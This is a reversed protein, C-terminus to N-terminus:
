PIGCLIGQPSGGQPGGLGGWHDGMTFALFNKNKYLFHCQFWALDILSTAHKPAWSVGPVSCLKTQHKRPDWGGGGWGFGLRRILM